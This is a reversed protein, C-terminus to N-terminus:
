IRGTGTHLCQENTIPCQTFYIQKLNINYQKVVTKYEEYTYEKLNEPSLFEKTNTFGHRKYFVGVSRPAKIGDPSTLTKYMKYYEDLTKIGAENVLKKLEEYKYFKKRFQEHTM